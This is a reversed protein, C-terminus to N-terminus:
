GSKPLLDQATLSAINHADLFEQLSGPLPPEVLTAFVLEAGADTAIQGLTALQDCVMQITEPDTKFNDKCEYFRIKDELRIILDIDTTMGGKRLVFGKQWYWASFSYYYQILLLVSLLGSKLGMAFLPNLRYAFDADLALPTKTHCGRCPMNETISQMEYWADLM